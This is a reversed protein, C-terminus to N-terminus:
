LWVGASRAFGFSVLGAVLGGALVSGSVGHPKKHLEWLPTEERFDLPFVPLLVLNM